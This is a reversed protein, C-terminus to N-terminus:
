TAYRYSKRTARKGLAARALYGGRSVCGVTIPMDNQVFHLIEDSSLAFNLSPAASREIHCHDIL